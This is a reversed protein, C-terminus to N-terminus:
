AASASVAGGSGTGAERFDGDFAGNGARLGDHENFAEVVARINALGEAIEDRKSPRDRGRAQPKPDGRLVAAVYKLTKGGQLATVDFANKIAQPPYRGCLEVAQRNCGGPMLEGTAEQFLFRFENISMRSSSAKSPEPELAQAEIVETPQEQTTTTTELEPEPEPKPKPQPAPAQTPPLTPPLTPAVRVGLWLLVVNRFEESKIRGAGESIAKVSNKNEPRFFGENHKKWNLILLERTEFNYRIKNEDSFKAILEQIRDLTVGTEHAMVKTSVQYCGCIDLHQNTFVWLYFLKEDPAWELVDMDAWFTDLVARYKSSDAKM